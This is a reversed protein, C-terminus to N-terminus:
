LTFGTSALESSIEYGSIDRWYTQGSYRLKSKPFLKKRVNSHIGDAGIISNTTVSSNDLFEVSYFKYDLKDYQIPLVYKRDKLNYIGIKNKRVVKFLGSSIKLLKFDPCKKTLM